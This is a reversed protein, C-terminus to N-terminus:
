QIVEAYFECASRVYYTKDTFFVTESDFNYIIGYGIFEHDQVVTVKENNMMAKKFDRDTRLRVSRKSM